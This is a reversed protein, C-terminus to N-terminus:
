KLLIMKKTEVFSGAQLRYFYIGSTLRSADFEVEYEGISKEEDILKAIENGLVDYIKLIIFNLEPIEIKINTVPNFPNPYNQFLKGTIPLSEESHDNQISSVGGSNTALIVGSDGVVWGDQDNFFNIAFLEVSIGSEQNIWTIGGDVTYVIEGKWGGSYYHRGVAWGKTISIFFIDNFYQFGEHQLFWTEGADTTKYIREGGGTVWGTMSDIFFISYKYYSTPNTIENWVNGGDVTRFIKWKSIAWGHLSDAFYIDELFSNTNIQQEAWNLGGDNTKMILGADGAIWGINTTIFFITSIFYQNFGTNLRTWNEGFDITKCVINDMGALYGITDNPLSISYLWASYGINKNVWNLGGDTTKFVTGGPGVALGNYTNVFKIDHIPQVSNSNQLLWQARLAGSTFFILFFCKIFFKIDM